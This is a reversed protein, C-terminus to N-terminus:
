TLVMMTRVQRSYVSEDNGTNTAKLQRPQVDKTNGINETQSSADSKDLIYDDMIVSLNDNSLTM